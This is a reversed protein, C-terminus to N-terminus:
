LYTIMIDNKFKNNFKHGIINLGAGRLDDLIPDGLGTADLHV